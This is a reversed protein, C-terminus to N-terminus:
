CTGTQRLKTLWKRATEHPVAHGADNLATRFQAATWGKRNAENWLDRATARAANTASNANKAYAGNSNKRQAFLTCARALSIAGMAVIQVAGEPKGHALMEEALKFQCYASASHYTPDNGVEALETVLLEVAKAKSGAAYVEVAGPLFAKHRIAFDKPSEPIAVGLEILLSETDKILSTLPWEAEAEVARKVTLTFVPDTSM